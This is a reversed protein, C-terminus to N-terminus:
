IGGQPRLIEGQRVRHARFQRGSTRYYKFLKWDELRKLSDTIDKVGGFSISGKQRVRTVADSTEQQNQLIEQYDCSPLLERCLRKGPETSAYETLTDIIKYYELTKLAKQNM